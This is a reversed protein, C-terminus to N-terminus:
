CDTQCLLRYWYLELSTQLCACVAWSLGSRANGWCTTLIFSFQLILLRCELDHAQKGKRLLDQLINGPMECDYLPFLPRCM